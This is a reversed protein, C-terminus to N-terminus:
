ASAGQGAYGGLLFCRLQEDSMRGMSQRLQAVIERWEREHVVAEIREAAAHMANAKIVRVRDEPTPEIQRTRRYWWRASAANAQLLLNLRLESTKM